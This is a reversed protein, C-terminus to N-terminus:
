KVGPTRKLLRLVFVLAAAYSAQTVWPPGAIPLLRQVAVTQTETYKLLGEEGHRRGVGSQKFGGMPADMSGWAAGYSENVNVMGAQLRAAVRHGRRTDRTWVSFNLGYPSANARAIAEEETAFPYLSVVPGFTEEACVTMNSTVSELITPEYFYPGIDPRRRGGTLVRAGREVAEDVHRAVADLQKQSVLSGVDAGAFTLDTGLKLARAAAVFRPVFTDYLSEHVYLRETAICLQGSNSFCGTVAGRVARDVRADDLVIMANKGGLELSCGILRAGAQQAVLRGTGTSGTFMLFDIERILSPGLEAGDGTVVQILDPPLGADELLAAAWLASYPTQLDPKILVGNGAALAPLADTIGLTLPYNWPAIFGALGRPPHHEWTSTLIPVAGQRRRPRLLRPAMKGYYRAVNATDALEEFADRRAKGSELQVLDLIQERRALLLDHFRLLVAARTRAPLRAWVAQARRARGAAGTVDQPTCRPVAGLREGTFPLDVRVMERPAATVVRAALRDLLARSVHPSLETRVTGPLTPAM